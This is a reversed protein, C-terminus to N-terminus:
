CSETLFFSEIPPILTQQPVIFLVARSNEATREIM